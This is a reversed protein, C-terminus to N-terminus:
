TLDGEDARQAWTAFSEGDSRQEAYRSAVREVFLPLEASTVKLGRPKRGFGPTQASRAM